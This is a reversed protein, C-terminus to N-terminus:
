LRRSLWDIVREEAWYRPSWPVRGSVFGIHGGRRTRLVEVYSSARAAVLDLVAPPLFPDDEASLCLTPTTIRSVFGLSSSRM